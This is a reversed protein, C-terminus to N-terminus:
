YHKWLILYNDLRGTSPWADSRRFDQMSTITLTIHSLQAAEHCFWCFSIPAWRLSLDAQADAWDSWLRLQASLPYSLVRPKKMLVASQDSQASACASKLRRQACIGNQQNQWLASCICKFGCSSASSRIIGLMEGDVLSERWEVMLSLHESKIM